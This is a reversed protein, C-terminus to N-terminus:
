WSIQIPHEIDIGSTAGSISGVSIWNTCDTSIYVFTKEIVPGGEFIWLDNASNGSTTLSNDTFKVILTGNNGLSVCYQSVENGAVEPTGLANSSEIHPSAAYSGVNFSIIEDAFSIDGDPFEVGGIIEAQVNLTFLICYVMFINIYFKTM